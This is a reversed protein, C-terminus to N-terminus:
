LKPRRLREGVFWASRILNPNGERDPWYFELVPADFSWQWGVIDGPQYDRRTPFPGQREGSRGKSKHQRVIVGTTDEWPLTCAEDRYLTVGAETVEYGQLPIGDLALLLDLGADLATLADSEWYAGSHIVTNRAEDILTVNSAVGAPIVGKEVLGNLLDQWRPTHPDLGGWASALDRVRAELEDLLKVLAVRGDQTALQLIDDAIEDSPSAAVAPAEESEDEAAHFSAESGVHLQRKVEEVPGPDPPRFRGEVLPTKIEESRSILERLQGRFLFIAFAILLPWALSAVAEGINAWEDASWALQV